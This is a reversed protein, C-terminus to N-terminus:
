FHREYTKRRSQQIIESLLFFGAPPSRAFLITNM